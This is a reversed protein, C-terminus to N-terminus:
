FTKFFFNWGYGDNAMMLGLFGFFIGKDFGGKGEFSLRTWTM